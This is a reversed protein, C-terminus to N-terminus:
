MQKALVQFEIQEMIDLDSTEQVTKNKHELYAEICKIFSCVKIHQIM